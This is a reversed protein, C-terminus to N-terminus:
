LPPRTATAIRTNWQTYAEQIATFIKSLNKKEKASVFLIPIKRIQPFYEQADKIFESSFKQFDTIQDIKNVFFMLCRGEEVVHHAITLDQKDLTQTADLVLLVVEAYQIARKTEKGSMQEVTKTVKARKRLGVTDILTYPKNAWTFSM